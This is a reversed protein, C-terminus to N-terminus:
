IFHGCRNRAAQTTNEMLSAITMPGVGGPVPTIAGAIEKVASFDVDGCLKGDVHNTGVDIVAAGPKVMDATIIGAKGAASVLIDATKTIEQLNQTKSHCLTVTADAHLLLLAIPRGVDVSRGVVVARKGTIPINYETLLTMIGKPTCARPGPLGTMLRGMNLPHFGDVDKGPDIAAIVAETDILEPLPLQVLIGDIDPDENLQRIRELVTKTSSDGPLSINVSHIGVEECARHKMRVYMQSAPDDGVIVTALTPTLGGEIIDEKLLELRRAALGKGDLIM